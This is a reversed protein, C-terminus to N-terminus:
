FEPDEGTGAAAVAPALAEFPQEVVGEPERAVYKEVPVSPIPLTGDAIGKLQTQFEALAEGMKARFIKDWAAALPTETNIEEGKVAKVYRVGVLSVHGDLSVRNIRPLNRGGDLRQYMKQAKQRIEKEKSTM